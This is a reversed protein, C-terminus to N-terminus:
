DLVDHRKLPAGFVVDLVTGNMKRMRRHYHEASAITPLPQGQRAVLHLAARLLRSARSRASPRKKEAKDESQDSSDASTSSTTPFLMATKVRRNRVYMFLSLGICFMAWPGFRGLRRTLRSLRPSLNLLVQLARPLVYLTLESRRRPDEILIASGAVLGGLVPEYWPDRKLLNRTHCVVTKMGTQYSTIFLSSWFANSLVRSVIVGPQALLVQPRFLATPLFHVPIYIGLGRSVGALWDRVHYKWCPGKHMLNQCPVFRDTCRHIQEHQKDTSNGMRLIWRYYARDLAGPRLLYAYMIPAQCLAFVISVFHPVRRWRGEHVRLRILEDLARVLVYVGLTPARSPSDVLLATSALAAAVAHMRASCSGFSEAFVSCTTQYIANTLGLFQGFRLSDESLFVRRLYGKRFAKKNFLGALLGLTSKFTWGVAFSRLFSRLFHRLLRVLLKRKEGGNESPPKSVTPHMRTVEDPSFGHERMMLDRVNVGEIDLHRQLAQLTQLVSSSASPRLQPTLSPMDPFPPEVSSM